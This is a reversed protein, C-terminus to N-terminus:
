KSSDSTNLHHTKIINKLLKFSENSWNREYGFDVQNNDKDFCYYLKPKRKSNCFKCKKTKITFGLLHECYDHHYNFNFVLYQSNKGVYEKYSDEKKICWEKSGYKKIDNHTFVEIIIINDKNYLLKINKDSLISKILKEKLSITKDIFNFNNKICFEKIQSIESPYIDDVTWIFKKKDELNISNFMDKYPSSKIENMVGEVYLIDSYLKNLNNYELPSKWLFKTLNKSKLYPWVKKMDNIEEKSILSKFFKYYHPNKDKIRELECWKEFNRNKFFFKFM